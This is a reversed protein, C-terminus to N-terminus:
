AAAAVACHPFCMVITAASGSPLPDRLSSGLFPILARLVFWLALAVLTTAFFPMALLEDPDDHHRMHGRHAPSGELHFFWRHWGYEVLGWSIAGSVM